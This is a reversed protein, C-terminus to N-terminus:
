SVPQVVRERGTAPERLAPMVEEVLRHMSEREWAANPGSWDVGTILLHGFPGIETRLAALKAAVTKPAGYIM